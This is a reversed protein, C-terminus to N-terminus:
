ENINNLDFSRSIAYVLYNECLYSSILNTLCITILLFKFYYSPIYILNLLYSSFQDPYIILFLSYGIAISLYIILILNKFISKKFPYNISLIFFSIYYQLNAVFYIVNNEYSPIVKDIDVSKKPHYNNYWKERSLVYWSLLQFFLILIMQLILSIILPYNILSISATENTLKKKAPNISFLIILPFTVFLDISLFQNKSYNTGNIFLIITSTFQIFAYLIIYKIVQIFTVLTAKGELLLKIVCKIDSNM